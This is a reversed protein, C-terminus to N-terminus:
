KTQNNKISIIPRICYSVYNLFPLWYSCRFYNFIQDLLYGKFSFVTFWDCNLFHVCEEIVCEVKVYQYSSMYPFTKTILNKPRSNFFLYLYSAGNIHFKASLKTHGM